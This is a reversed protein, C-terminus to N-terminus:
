FSGRLASGAMGPGLLPALSVASTERREEARGGIFFTTAGAALAAVGIAYFTWQLAEYHAGSRDRNRIMDGLIVTDGHVLDNVEDETSKVQYSFYGGVGLAIVGVGGLALGTIQTRNLGGRRLPEVSTTTVSPAVEPAPPAPPPALQAAARTRKLEEMEAIFGEVEKRKAPDLGKAQRLYERFSSIARDPEGLNQYCRGINRLYTPHLTDAYLKGYLDLAEQYKGVAFYARARTDRDADGQAHAPATVVAALVAVAIALLLRPTTERHPRV